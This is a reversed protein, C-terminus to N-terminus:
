QRWDCYPSFTAGKSVIKLLGCRGHAAFQVNIEPAGDDRLNTPAFGGHPIGDVGNRSQKLTGLWERIEGEYALSVVAREILVVSVGYAPIRARHRGNTLANLATVDVDKNPQDATHEKNANFGELTTHLLRQLKITLAHM